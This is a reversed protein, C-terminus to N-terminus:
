LRDPAVGEFSIHRVVLGEFQDLQDGDPRQSETKDLKTESLAETGEAAAAILTAAARDLATAASPQQSWGGLGGGFGFVLICALLNGRGCRRGSQRSPM